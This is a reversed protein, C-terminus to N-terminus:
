PFNGHHQFHKHGNQRGTAPLNSKGSIEHHLLFAKFESGLWINGINCQPYYITASPHEQCVFSEFFSEYDAFYDLVAFSDGM